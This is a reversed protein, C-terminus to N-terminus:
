RMFLKHMKLTKIFSKLCKFCTSQLTERYILFYEIHMDKISKSAHKSVSYLTYKHENM